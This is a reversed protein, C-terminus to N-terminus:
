WSLLPCGQRPLPRLGYFGYGRAPGTRGSSDSRGAAVGVLGALDENGPKLRGRPMDGAHSCADAPMWGALVARQSARRRQVACALRSDRQWDVANVPQTTGISTECRQLTRNQSRHGETCPM